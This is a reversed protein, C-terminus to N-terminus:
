TADLNVKASDVLMAVAAATFAKSSSGIAFVTREDVPTPKGVERVGYGKAYILSDNRVIAIAVGPVKWQALATRVYADLGPYPERPQQAAAHQAPAALAVAFTVMAVLRRMALEKRATPAHIRHAM